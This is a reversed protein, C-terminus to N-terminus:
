QEKYEKYVRYPKTIVRSPLSRLFNSLDKEMESTMRTPKSLVRSVFEEKFHKNVFDQNLQIKIECEKCTIQSIQENKYEIEHPTEKECLICFLYAQVHSKSM